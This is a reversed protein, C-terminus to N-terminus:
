CTEVPVMSLIKITIANDIDHSPCVTQLVICKIYSNTSLSHQYFLFFFYNTELLIIYM